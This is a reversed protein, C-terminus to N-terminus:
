NLKEKIRLHTYKAVAESMSTVGRLPRQPFESLFYKLTERAAYSLDEDPSMYPRLVDATRPVHDLIFREMTVPCFRIKAIEQLVENPFAHDDLYRCFLHEIKEVTMGHGGRGNLDPTDISFGLASRMGVVWEDSAVTISRIYRSHATADCKFASVLPAGWSRKIKRIVPGWSALDCLQHFGIWRGFLPIRSALYLFNCVFIGHHPTACTIVLDVKIETGNGDLLEEILSLKAILGGQSHAILVITDYRTSAAKLFSRLDQIAYHLPPQYLWRSEYQFLFVNYSNATRNNQKQWLNPFSDWTSWPGGTIGHIFIVLANARPHDRVYM